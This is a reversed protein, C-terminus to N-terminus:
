KIYYSCVQTLHFHENFFVIRGQPYVSFLRNITCSLDLIYYLLDVIDDM